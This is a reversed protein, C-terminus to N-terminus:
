GNGSRVFVRKKTSLGKGRCNTYALKKTILFPKETAAGIFFMATKGSVASLNIQTQGSIIIKDFVPSV